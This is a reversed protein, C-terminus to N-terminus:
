TNKKLCFVAYSIRMLSQLESTHEESRASGGRSVSRVAEGTVARKREAEYLCVRTRIAYRRGYSHPSRRASSSICDHFSFAACHPDNREDPRTARALRAKGLRQKVCAALDAPLAAHFGAGCNSIGARFRAGPLGGGVGIEKSKLIHAIIVPQDVRGSRGSKRCAASRRKPRGVKRDNEDVGSRQGGGEGVGREPAGVGEAHRM